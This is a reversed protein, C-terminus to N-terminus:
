RHRLQEIWTFFNTHCNSFWACLGASFSYLM